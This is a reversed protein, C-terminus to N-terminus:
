EATIYKDVINQFTGESILEALAGNIADLLATNSKNVGIAYDENTFETDLIKLGPNEKVFVKAPENDIVVCDVQGNKLAEVATIGSEYATVNEEGYGGNDPTDSCYFYGTTGMQTGIQKGELDDISTIDSDEKVIVVQVGKAYSDSFNIVALRDENVTLGAMVIDSAGNQCATISADFGMDNIQLTLGLKKAIAEAVEVDIGIFGGNDDTMEYPPFDASTSMTLVGETITTFEPTSGSGTPNNSPETSPTTSSDSCGAFLGITMMVALLLSLIKAYKKM